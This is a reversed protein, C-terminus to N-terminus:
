LTGQPLNSQQETKTEEDWFSIILNGVEHTQSLLEILSHMHFTNALLLWM